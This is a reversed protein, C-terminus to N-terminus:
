EPWMELAKKFVRSLNSYWDARFILNGNLYIDMIQYDEEDMRFQIEVNQDVNYQSLNLPELGDAVVLQTILGTEVM